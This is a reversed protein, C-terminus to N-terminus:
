GGGGEALPPPLVCVLSLFSNWQSWNDLASEGAGQQIKRFNDCQQHVLGLSVLIVVKISKVFSRQGLRFHSLGFHKHKKCYGYLQSVADPVLQSSTLTM